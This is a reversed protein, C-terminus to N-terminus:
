MTELVRAHTRLAQAHTRMRMYAYVHGLTETAKRKWFYNIQEFFLNYKGYVNEDLWIENSQARFWGQDKSNPYWQPIPARTM